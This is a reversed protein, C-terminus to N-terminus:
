DAKASARSKQLVYLILGIAAWIGFDLVERWKTATLLWISFVIGAIALGPGHRVKFYNRNTEKSRLKILSLCVLLYLLLRIIVAVNLASMFTWALSIGAAIVTFLVLSWTPTLHQPHIYSFLKPLQNEQSLAFPLRSGSLFIANLTGTISVAAGITMLLSGSYGMFLRAADALPKESSALTPLTGIAVLQILFYFLTVVLAAVLLAFPLNRHPNRIEGTNVLVSEFGGFAFILLLVSASFSPLSPPDTIVLRQPQMFFLGAIIFVALPVLKAITLANNLKTSSKVGIHNIYAIALTLLLICTIRMMHNSFADSFFSLYIVLLNILVAYNFLRGLILLWGTVFAPFPGFSELVYVYPGGTKDFRSSVEAFVFIFVGVVIACAVFALLSYVGSLKFVRSPLGFIGAGIISNIILLVLEWRKIGRNLM